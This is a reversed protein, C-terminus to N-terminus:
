SVVILNSTGKYMNGLTDEVVDYTGDSLKPQITDTAVLAPSVTFDYKSTSANYAIASITTASAQTGGLVWKAADDLDLIVSDKNCASVVSTSFDTGAATADTTVSTEIAGIVENLDGVKSWPLFFHRANFEVANLLQFVVSTMQPDTGQVLKLTEVSFMGGDFPVLKDGASNTAMLIGETFVLAFNWLSDGKKNFLSKTQCSGGKYMLTFQPKGSRIESLVGTSSTNKENEPTDQSFDQLDKIYPFATLSKVTNSYETLGFAANGDTIPYSVSKNFLTAGILDGFRKIDCTGYGSGTRDTTCNGYANLDVAM